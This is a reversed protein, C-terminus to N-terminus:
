RENIKMFSNVKISTFRYENNLIKEGNGCPITLYVARLCMNESITGSNELVTIIENLMNAGNKCATTMNVAKFSM